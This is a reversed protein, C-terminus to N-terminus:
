VPERVAEPTSPAAPVRKGGSRSVAVGLLCLVGGALTMWGPVESLFAWSMLVVIAPVVYTTAGMKGATTAKLAAVVLQRDPPDGGQRQAEVVPVDVTLVLTRCGAALARDVLGDAMERSMVYLQFWFDGGAKEAVQEITANSATSLVFPIDNRAAVKALLVDGAARLVGSLGTPAIVLPLPLRQGFLGVSLDRESVDVLTRPSFLVSELAQRNRALGRESGAGGELYDFAARPLRRRARERMEEVTIVGM